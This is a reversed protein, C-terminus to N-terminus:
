KELSKIIGKAYAYNRKPNDVAKKEVKSFAKRVTEEGASDMMNMIEEVVEPDNEKFVIGAYKRATNFEKAGYALKLRNWQSELWEPDYLPMLKYTKALRSSYSGDKPADYLVDILNQKRLEGMGKTITGNTTNFRKALIERSSFWWPASDSISVYALNILYCFKAPFSLKRDWGYKWFNDPIQFYWEKPYSYPKEPNDYSLLMIVADEAYQPQFKILKYREELKRLTKTIQRRYAARTMRNELGLYGATKDYDLTIEGGANGDFEMLLLLYVDFVRADSDSLMRGALNPNELFAWSVPIRNEAYPMPPARGASKDIKIEKFYDILERALEESRVLVNTEVNRNFASQSWNASGIIVIKKDIIMAKAHTYTTLDDYEADIGAEKLVKFCWANKGETVWDDVSKAGVFDINQDLIVRVEIGREKAKVLESVLEYVQSSKDYPQLSINYMVLYISEKAEEIAKKVAPYYSRGSINVIDDAAAACAPTSISLLVSLLAIIPLSLTIKRM